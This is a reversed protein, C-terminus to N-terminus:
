KNAKNKAYVNVHNPIHIIMYVHIYIYVIVSSYFCDELSPGSRGSTANKEFWIMAM